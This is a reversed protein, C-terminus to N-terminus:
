LGNAVRPGMARTSQFKFVTRQKEIGADVGDAGDDIELAPGFGAGYVNLEIGSIGSTGPGGASNLKFTPSVGGSAMDRRVVQPRYTRSRAPSGETLSKKMSGDADNELMRDLEEDASTKTETLRDQIKLIEDSCDGDRLFQHAAHECMSQIFELGKDLEDLIGPPQKSNSYPTFSSRAAVFPRFPGPVLTSPISTGVAAPFSAPTQNPAITTITTLTTGPNATTTPQEAFKQEVDIRDAKTGDLGETHTASPSLQPPLFQATGNGFLGNLEDSSDDDPMELEAMRKIQAVKAAMKAKRMLNRSVSVFKVVDEFFSQVNSDYYVVVLSKSRYKSAVAPGDGSVLSDTAGRKKGAQNRRLAARAKATGAAKIQPTNREVASSTPSNAEDGGSQDRQTTANTLGSARNGDRQVALTEEASIRENAGPHADTDDKPKLSETSGRKRLSSKKCSSYQEALRALDGQRQDIQGSLEDLRKAWEACSSTLNHLAELAFQVDESVGPGSAGLHSGDSPAPATRGTPKSSPISPPPTACSTPQHSRLQRRSTHPPACSTRSSPRNPLLRRLRLLPNQPTPEVPQLHLELIPPTKNSLGPSSTLLKEHTHLTSFDLDIHNEDDALTPQASYLM